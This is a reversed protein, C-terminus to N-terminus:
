NSPCICGRGWVFHAWNQSYQICYNLPAQKGPITCPKYNAQDIGLRIAWVILGAIAVIEATCVIVTRIGHPAPYSTCCHGARGVLQGSPCGANSGELVTQGQILVGDGRYVVFSSELPEASANTQFSASDGSLAAAGIIGGGERIIGEPITIAEVDGYKQVDLYQEEGLDDAYVAAIHSAGEGGTWSVVVEEGPVIAQDPEPEVLELPMPIQVSPSAYIVTGDPRKAVLTLSDGGKLDYLELYYIPVNDEDSAEDGLYVLEFPRDNITLVADSVFNQDGDQVWATAVPGEDDFSVTAQVVRQSVSHDDNDSCAPLSMTSLTFLVVLLLTLTKSRRLRNAIITENGRM